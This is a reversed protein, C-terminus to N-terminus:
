HFNDDSGDFPDGSNGGFEAFPDEPQSPRDDPYHPQEPPTQGYYGRSYPNQNYPNNNFEQGSYQRYMRYRREQEGRLYDRFNMGKNKRIVFMIIGQVPFVVCLLTFWFYHRAGYTQFFAALLLIEFFSLVLGFWYVIEELYVACVEAWNLYGPVIGLTLQPVYYPEAVELTLCGAASLNFCSIYFLVSCIFLAAESIATILGVIKTSFGKFVRNKQSCVGIYYTSVFPIFAMWKHAYGERKAIIFLAAAQLGFVCLFFASIAVLCVWWYPSLGGETSATFYSATIVYQSFDM